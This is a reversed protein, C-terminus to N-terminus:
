RPPPNGHREDARQHWYGQGCAAQTGYIACRPMLPSAAGGSAWGSVWVVTDVTSFTAVALRRDIVANFEVVFLDRLCWDVGCSTTSENPFSSFSKSFM